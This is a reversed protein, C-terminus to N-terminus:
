PRLPPKDPRENSVRGRQKKQETLQHLKKSAATFDPKIELAKKLHVVAKDIQKKDTLVLAINYHVYTDKPNIEIAAKLYGVAEDLKGESRLAMALNNYADVYTPKGQVARRYHGIAEDLRGKIHLLHALNYHALLHHPDIRIAKRYYLEARDYDAQRLFANGLNVWAYPNEPVVEVTAQWISVATKYDRNRIFTRVGLASAAILVLVLGVYNFAKVAGFNGGLRGILIYGGIIVLVIVGALPLYLRHEFALDAIPIFSSTPALIALFWFAPYSFSMRRWLGWISIITIVSIIVVYPLLKGLDRTLQWKYSLCLKAPWLSSKLYHCVIKCQNAAYYFPNIGISFGASKFRPGWWNVALLVAWTSFLLVYFPRRRRFAASVSGTFFLRDYLLVMLPATVMVEKTGMGAACCLVSFAQWVSPRPSQNARIATYLTLLFFLGMLSEIRQIIYTVSETQLPHLLWLTAVLWALTSADKGFRSRLKETLLSRRVIGYLTLGAFVHILLNTLHYGWVKYGFLAYTVALSLAAAPRGDLGSEPPASLAKGIPLLSRLHPNQLITPKDDFIFEGTLSNAYVLCTSVVLLLVFIREKTFLLMRERLLGKSAQCPLQLRLLNFIRWVSRKM